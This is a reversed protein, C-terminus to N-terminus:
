CNFPSQRLHLCVECVPLLFTKPLDPNASRAAKGIKILVEDKDDGFFLYGLQVKSQTNMYKINPDGTIDQAWKLFEDIYRQKEASSTSELEELYRSDIHFGNTEM